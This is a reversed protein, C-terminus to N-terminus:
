PIHNKNIPLDTKRSLSYVKRGILLLFILNVIFMIGITEFIFLSFVVGLCGIIGVVISVWGFRRGFAPARIMVVGFAIFGIMLFLSGIFVFTNPIGQTTQWLIVVTAQEELMTAPAHFIESLPIFGFFTFADSLAIGLYGIICLLSGFLAFAQSTL